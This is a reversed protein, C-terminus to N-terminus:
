VGEKARMRRNKYPVVLTTGQYLLLVEQTYSFRACRLKM